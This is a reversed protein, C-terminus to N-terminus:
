SFLSPAPNSPYKGDGNTDMIVHYPMGWPGYLKPTGPDSYDIGNVAKGDPLTKAQKFGDLYDHKKPNMSLDGRASLVALFEPNAVTTGSWDATADTVAPLKDYDYYYDSISAALGVSVRKAVVSFPGARPRSATFMVESVVIGLIVVLGIQLTRILLRMARM